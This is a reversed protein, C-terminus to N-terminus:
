HVSDIQIETRQQTLLKLFKVSERKYFELLQLKDPDNRLEKFESQVLCYNIFLYLALIIPIPPDAPPRRIPATTLSDGSNNRPIIM